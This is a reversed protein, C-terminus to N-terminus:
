LLAALETLTVFRIGYNATLWARTAPDFVSAGDASNGEDETCLYDNEYAYHAAVTDADAWEGVGRQIRREEHIDAAQNLASFWTGTTGLRSHIGNGIATLVARGVGRGELDRGLAIFRNNRNSQEEGQDQVFDSEQLESPRALGIRPARMFRVGLAVAAARWREVVEHLGLHLSGAEVKISLKIEGNGLEEESVSVDAKAASFYLGRQANQIGELTALTESVRAEIRGDGIAAHIKQFEPLRPDKAFVSPDVVRRYTNSDFTVKM